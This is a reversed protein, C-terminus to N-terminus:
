VENATRLNQPLLELLKEAVLHNVVYAVAGHDNRAGIVSALEGVSATHYAAPNQDKLRRTGLWVILNRAQAAPFELELETDRFWRLADHFNIYVARGPAEDSLQRVFHSVADVKASEAETRLQPLVMSADASVRVFGWRKCAYPISHIQAPGDPLPSGCIICDM